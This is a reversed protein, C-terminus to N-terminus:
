DKKMNLCLKDGQSQKSKCNYGWAADLKNIAQMLENRYKKLFKGPFHPHWIEAPYCFRKLDLVIIYFQFKLSETDIPLNLTKIYDSFEFSRLANIAKIRFKLAERLEAYRKSSLSKEECAVAAAELLLHRSYYYPKVRM